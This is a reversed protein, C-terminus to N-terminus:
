SFSYSSDTSIEITNHATHLREQERTADNDRLTDELEVKDKNIMIMLDSDQLHKNKDRCFRRALNHFSKKMDDETSSQNLGLVHYHM